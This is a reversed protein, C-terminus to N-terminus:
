CSGMYDEGGALLPEKENVINEEGIFVFRFALTFFIKRVFVVINVSIIVLYFYM